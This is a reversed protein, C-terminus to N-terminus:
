KADNLVKLVHAMQGIPLKKKDDIIINVRKQIREMSPNERKKWEKNDEEDEPEEGKQKKLEKKLRRLNRTLDKIEKTANDLDKGLKQMQDEIKKKKDEENKLDIECANINQCLVDEGVPEENLESKIM